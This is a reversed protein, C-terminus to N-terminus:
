EIPIYEKDPIEKKIFEFKLLGFILPVIITFFSILRLEKPDIILCYILSQNLIIVFPLYTFIIIEISSSNLM